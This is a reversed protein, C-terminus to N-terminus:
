RKIDTSLEEQADRSQSRQQEPPNYKNAPPASCAANSLALLLLSLIAILKSM